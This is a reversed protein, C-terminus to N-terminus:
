PALELRVVLNRWTKRDQISPPSLARGHRMARGIKTKTSPKGLQHILGAAAFVQAPAQAIKGPRIAPCQGIPGHQMPEVRYGSRRGRKRFRKANGKTNQVNAAAIAVCQPADFSPSFRATQIHFKISDVEIRIRPCNGGFGAGRAASNMPNRRIHKRIRRRFRDVQHYTRQERVVKALPIYDPKNLPHFNM